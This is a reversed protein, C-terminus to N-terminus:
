TARGLPRAPADAQDSIEVAPSIAVTGAHRAATRIPARRLVFREAQPGLTDRHSRMTSWLRERLSEALLAYEPSDILSHMEAPDTERDYLEDCEAFNLVYKYRQTFLIRQSVPLRHGHFQGLLGDRGPYAPDEIVSTLSAGDSDPLSARAVEALTVPVDLLSVLQSRVMGGQHAAGAPKVILPVRWIEEFSLPGKDFCGGHIGCTEGHDSCFVILTQEDLGLAALRDLLQGIAADIMSAFALYHRRIRRWRAEDTVVAHPFTRDRWYRQVAPRNSLDDHFSSPLEVSEAPIRDLYEATPAYPAHPGWFNLAFMWPAAGQAADEIWRQAYASLFFAPSSATPSLQIGSWNGGEGTALPDHASWDIRYQAPPLGHRNLYARYEPLALCDGYGAPGVGEFGADQCTRALGAHFKGAYGVRYGAETLAHSYFRQGGGITPEDFPLHDGTNHVAGHRHPYRGTLLSARTPTCLPCPTYARDFRIGRGALRDLSPTAAAVGGYCGLAFCAMQDVVILLVNPRRSGPGVRADNSDTM